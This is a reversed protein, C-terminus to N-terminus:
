DSSHIMSWLFRQDLCHHYVPHVPTSPVVITTTTTTKHTRAASRSVWLRTRERNEV